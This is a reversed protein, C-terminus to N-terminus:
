SSVVFNFNIFVFIFVQNVLTLYSLTTAFSLHEVLNEQLDVVKYFDEQLGTM